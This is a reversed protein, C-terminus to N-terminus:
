TEGIRRAHGVRTQLNLLVGVVDVFIRVLPIQHSDNGVSCGNQAQAVDAGHAALGDHLALPQQELNIAADVNEVDLHVLFVRHFEGEKPPILRSSM